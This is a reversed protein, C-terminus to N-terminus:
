GQGHLPMLCRCCLVSPPQEDYVGRWWDRLDTSTLEMKDACELHCISERAGTEMAYLVQEPTHNKDVLLAQMAQRSRSTDRPEAPYWLRLWEIREERGDEFRVRCWKRGREILTVQPAPKQLSAMTYQKGVELDRWLM